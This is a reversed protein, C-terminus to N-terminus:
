ERNTKVTTTMESSHELIEKKKHMKHKQRQQQLVEYKYINKTLKRYTKIILDFFYEM